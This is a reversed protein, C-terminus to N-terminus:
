YGEDSFYRKLIVAASISDVRKRAKKPLGADVAEEQAENTSNSEDVFVVPTGLHSKLIKAFRRVELSEKTEKGALSLPLGIVILRAKNEKVLRSIQSVVYMRDKSEVSRVPTVVGDKGLSMGTVAEGFDVGVVFTNKYNM